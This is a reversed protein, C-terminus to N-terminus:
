SVWLLIVRGGEALGDWDYATGLTGEWESSFEPLQLM